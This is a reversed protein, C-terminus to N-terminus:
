KFFDSIKAEPFVDLYENIGILRDAYRRFKLGRAGIMGSRMM